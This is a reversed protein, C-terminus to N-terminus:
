SSNNKIFETGALANLAHVGSFSKDYSLTNNWTVTIDEGRDENLGNPRNQRGLGQGRDLDGVGGDDDGFNEFFAKNHNFNIEMGVNTRFKLSNDALIAYGGYANGFTKFQRQRNNTFYALAVPNQTWEYKTSQ